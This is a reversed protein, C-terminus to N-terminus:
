EWESRPVLIQKKRRRIYMNKLEKAEEKTFDEDACNWAKNDLEELREVTEGELRQDPFYM